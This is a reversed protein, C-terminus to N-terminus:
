VVTPAIASAIPVGLEACLIQDLVAPDPRPAEFRQGGVLNLPWRGDFATEIGGEKTVSGAKSKEANKSGRQVARPNNKLGRYQRLWEREETNRFDEPPPAKIPSPILDRRARYAAQRCANDCFLRAPRHRESHRPWL